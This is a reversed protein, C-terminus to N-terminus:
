PSLRARCQPCYPSKPGRPRGCFTHRGSGDPAVGVPSRCGNAPLDVLLRPKTIPAPAVDVPETAAAGLSYAPRGANPLLGRAEALTARRRQASLRNSESKPRAPLREIGGPRKRARAILAAVRSRSVGLREGIALMSLSADSWLLEIRNLLALNEPTIVRDTMAAREALNAPM